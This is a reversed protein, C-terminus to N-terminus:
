FGADGFFGLCGVAELPTDVGDLWGVKMRGDEDCGVMMSGDSSGVLEMWFTVKKWSNVDIIFM